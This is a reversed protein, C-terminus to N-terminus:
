NEQRKVQKSSGKQQQSQAEANCVYHLTGQLQLLPIHTNVSVSVSSVCLCLSLCLVRLFM